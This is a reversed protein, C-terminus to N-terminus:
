LFNLKGTQWDSILVRSTADIDVVGGKRLKKLNSGIRELLEEQDKCVKVGYLERLKEPYNEIFLDLIKVAVLDPEKIKETLASMLILSEENDRNLPFVGPTDLLMLDRSIRVKQVGKTFGAFHAAKAATKGKLFNVVSSKGTNPYGVVGVVVPRKNVAKM